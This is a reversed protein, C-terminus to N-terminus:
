DVHYAGFSRRDLCWDYLDSWKIPEFGSIFLDPSSEQEVNKKLNLAHIFFDIKYGGIQYENFSLWLRNM